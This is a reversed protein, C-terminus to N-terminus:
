LKSKVDETAAEQQQSGIELPEEESAHKRMFELQKRITYEWNEELYLSFHDCDVTVLESGPLLAAAQAVVQTFFYYPPVQSFSTSGHTASWPKANREDDLQGQWASLKNCKPEELGPMYLLALDHNTKQQRGTRVEHPCLADKAASILMVPSKIAGVYDLPSYRPAEFVFRAPIM